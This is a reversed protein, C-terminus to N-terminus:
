RGTLIIIIFRYPRGATADERIKADRRSVRSHLSRNRAFVCLDAFAGLSPRGYLNFSPNVFILNAAVQSANSVQIQLRAKQEASKNATLCDASFRSDSGTIHV